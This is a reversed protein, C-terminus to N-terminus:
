GELMAYSETDWVAVTGDRSGSVLISGDRSVALCTVAKKHTFPQLVPKGSSADWFRITADYSASAIQGDRTFLVSLIDDVHGEFSVAVETGSPVYIIPAPIDSRGVRLSEATRIDVSACPHILPSYTQHIKSSQPTFTMASLYIHPASKGMCEQFIDVFMIADAVFCGLDFDYPGIWNKACLLQDRACSMQSTLSLVELWFLFKTELFTKLAALIPGDGNNDGSLADAWFHCAYAVEGPIRKADRPGNADYSTRFRSPDFHLGTNLLNLLAFAIKRKNVCPSIRFMDSCANSILFDVFSQHSFRLYKGGEMMVSRLHRCVYGITSMEVGLITFLPTQRELPRSATVIAGIFNKFEELFRATPEPCDACFAIRLIVRYLNTIDGEVNMDGTLIQQLVDHPRPQDVFKVVTAAWVFLGNAKKALARIDVETPWSDPLSHTTAIKRFELKLFVEIDRSAQRSSLRLELPTSIPNLVEPIPTDKRSTVVLRLLPSLKSWRVIAALIHERDQLRSRGLGGCEDLADVVIVVTNGVRLENLLRQLPNEVLRIFQDKISTTSFDIKRTELDAVLADRFPTYRCLDSSITRLMTSPATFIGGDREFFFSSDFRRSNAVREALSRAIASKGAGPFGKIFLINPATIDDLWTEIKRFIWERTGELCGPIPRARDMGPPRICDLIDSRHKKLFEKQDEVLAQLDVLRKLSEVGLGESFERTWREFRRRLTEYDGMETQFSFGHQPYKLVLNGTLQIMPALTKLTGQFHGVNAFSKIHDVYALCGSMDEILDLLQEDSEEVKAFNDYIQGLAVCVTKAIPHLEGASSALKALSELVKRSRGLRELLHTRRSVMKASQDLVARPNELHLRVTIEPTKGLTHEVGEPPGAHLLKHAESATLPSSKVVSKIPWIYYPRRLLCLRLDMEPHLSFPPSLSFEQPYPASALKREFTTSGGAHLGIYYFGRGPIAQNVKAMSIQVVPRQEVPNLSFRHHQLYPTDGFDLHLTIESGDALVMQPSPNVPLVQRLVDQFAVNQTAIEPKKWVYKHTFQTGLVLVTGRRIIVPPQVSRRPLNSQLLEGDSEVDKGVSLKCAVSGQIDTNVVVATIKLTEPSMGTFRYGGDVLDAAM